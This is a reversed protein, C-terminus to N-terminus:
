FEAKLMNKSKKKAEQEEVDADEIEEYDANTEVNNSNLSLQKILKTQSSIIDMLSNITETQDDVKDTLKKILMNTKASDNNDIINELTEELDSVKNVVVNNSSTISDILEDVNISNAQSTTNSINQMANYLMDLKNLIISENFNSNNGISEGLNSITGNKLQYSLNVIKEYTNSTFNNCNMLLSYIKELKSDIDSEAKKVIFGEPADDTLVIGNEAMDKEILMRVYTSTRIGTSLKQQIYRNMTIDPATKYSVSFSYTERDKTIEDIVASNDKVNTNDSM